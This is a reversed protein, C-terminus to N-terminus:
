GDAADRSVVHVRPKRDQGHPPGTAQGAGLRGGPVRSDYGVQHDLYLDVDGGLVAPPPVGCPPQAQSWVTVRVVHWGTERDLSAPWNGARADAQENPGADLRGFASEAEVLAGVAAARQGVHAFARALVAPAWAEAVCPRGQALAGARAAFDVAGAPDGWYLASVAHRVLRNGTWTLRAAWLGGESGRSETLSIWRRTLRRLKAM